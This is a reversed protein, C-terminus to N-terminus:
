DWDDHCDGDCSGLLPSKLYMGLEHHNPDSDFVWTFTYFGFLYYGLWPTVGLGLHTGHRDIVLSPGIELGVFPGVWEGGFRAKFFEDFDTDINIVMGYTESILQGVARGSAELISGNVDLDPLRIISVEIGFTFGYDFTWALKIGPSVGWTGDARASSPLSPLLLCLVASL